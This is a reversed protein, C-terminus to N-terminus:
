QDAAFHTPWSLGAPKHYIALQIHLEPDRLRHQFVALGKEIFGFLLYYRLDPTILLHLTVQAFREIFRKYNGHVLCYYLPFAWIVGDATRIEELLTQWAEANAEYRRVQQAVYRYTFTHQPFRKEIWKVYQLTVSKEGKPSGGLVIINM